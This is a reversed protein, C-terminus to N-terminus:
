TKESKTTLSNLPVQCGYFASLFCTFSKLLHSWNHVGFSILNICLQIETFLISSRIKITKTKAENTSHTTNCTIGKNFGSSSELKMRSPNWSKVYWFSWPKSSYIALINRLNINGTKVKQGQIDYTHSVHSVCKM